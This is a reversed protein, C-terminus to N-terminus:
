TTARALRDLERILRRIWADREPSVPDGRTHALEGLVSDMAQERREQASLRGVTSRASPPM